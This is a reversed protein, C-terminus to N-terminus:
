FHYEIVLESILGFHDSPWLALKNNLTRYIGKGFLNEQVDKSENTDLYIPQIGIIKSSVPTIDKTFIADYRVQKEIFKINYRMHNIMTDETYGPFSQTNHLYRYTDVFGENLISNIEVLEPWKIDTGDLHTNFDGLMVIKKQYKKCMNRILRLQESRCRSYHHWKFTQGPSLHSGAQLYCGFIVVNTFELISLANSYGLNGKLVYNTYKIAPFKSLFLIELSRNTVKEIESIKVQDNYFYYTSAFKKQLYSFVETSVEQLCIIDPSNNQITKVIEKMRTHLCWNHFKPKSVQLGWINWTLIKFKQNIDSHVDYEKQIIPIIQECDCHLNHEEYAYKKGLTDIPTKPIMQSKRTLKKNCDGMEPVCLGYNITGAPCLYSYKESICNLESNM